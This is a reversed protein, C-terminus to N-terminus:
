SGPRGRPAAGAPAARRWGARAQRAADVPAEFGPLARPAPAADGTVRIPRPPCVARICVSRIATASPTSSTASVQVGDGAAPGCGTGNTRTWPRAEFARMHSPTAARRTAPPWGTTVTSRRPWPREDLGSPGYSTGVTASSRAASMARAAAQVPRDDGALGPTAVDDQLQGGTVGREDAPDGADVAAPELEAGVEGVPLRAAGRERRGPEGAAGRRCRPPVDAGGVGVPGLGADAPVSALKSTRGSPVTAGHSM